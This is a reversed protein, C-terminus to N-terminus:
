YRLLMRQLRGGVCIVCIVLRDNLTSQEKWEMEM